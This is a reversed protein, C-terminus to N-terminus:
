YVVVDAGFSVTIKVTVQFAGGLRAVAGPLSGAIEAVCLAARGGMQTAAAVADDASKVMVAGADRLDQLRHSLAHIEPMRAAVAQVVASVRSAAATAGSADVVLRAMGPTCEQHSICFTDCSQRCETRVEPPVIHGTCVPAQFDVSCGGRCEGRCAAQAQAVCQGSCSGTCGASCTGRCTGRCSGACQGNPLRASCEGECIGNCTGSCGGSCIGECAGACQGQVSSACSGTCQASCGGRLEGGECHYDVYGPRVVRPECREICRKYEEVKTTCVPEVIELKAEISAEARAKEMEAQVRAAVQACVSATDTGSAELEAASMRLDGGLNRCATGLQGDLAAVGGMFAGAADVFTALKASAEGSGLDGSCSEPMGGPGAGGSQTTACGVLVVVCWFRNRM